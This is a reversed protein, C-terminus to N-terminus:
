RSKPWLYCGEWKQCSWGSYRSGAFPSKVGVEPSAASGRYISCPAIVETRLNQVTVTM